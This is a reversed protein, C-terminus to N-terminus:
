HFNPVGQIENKTRQSSQTLNNKHKENKCEKAVNTTLTMPWPWIDYSTIHFVAVIGLRKATNDLKGRDVADTVYELFELLNTFM